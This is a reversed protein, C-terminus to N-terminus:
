PRVGTLLQVAGGSMATRAVEVFGAAELMRVLAEGSPLYVSSAPLYQYAAKDSLLGGVLPVIRKFYLAHGARMLPNAPTATELLAVRGGPKLVRAMEAFLQKLDTVNRLAFGCTIGDIVHDPLPMTLADAQALAAFGRQRARQLMPMSFDVGAGRWGRTAAEALFDGTGCAVDLVVAGDRLQLTASARRRWGADMGFTMVRNVLDYRGAIADFMSRVAGAKEAQEPLRVTARTM